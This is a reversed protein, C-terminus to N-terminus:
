SPTSSMIIRAAAREPDLGGLGVGGDLPELRVRALELRRDRGLAAAHLLQRQRRPELRPTARGRRPSSCPPESSLSLFLRSAAALAPAGPLRAASSSTPLSLISLSRTNAHLPLSHRRLKLTRAPRQPLSPVGARNDIQRDLEERRATSRGRRARAVAAAAAAAAAAAEM